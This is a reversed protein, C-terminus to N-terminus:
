NNRSNIHANYQPCLEKWADSVDGDVSAVDPVDEAFVAAFGQNLHWDIHCHFFWPGPNDATWRITVADLLGGISVVDRKVPNVYNYTASQASRVVSFTHGHLHVPHPGGLAGGPIVLEVVQGKQVSYISGQPLLSAASSTGSLIQLLVPVSPPQFSVGNVTFLVALSVVDLVYTVDAGGAEPKGPASRVHLNTEVMPLNTTQSTTPEAVAAGSYRLIACNLGNATTPLQLLTSPLARIWYNNVPQNANLVVSYRKGNFIELNDVLLPQVNQGDVEIITFQHNDISFTFSPDCSISVLRLRYRTGKVVNVVSLPSNPGGLYRGMGNILGAAPASSPRLHSPSNWDALTIVTDDNDVDYLSLHPDNSDYIVIAGRLGDCYQNRFHSHYWYTGAQDPVTFDYLFSNGPIIPCQTVFSPGDMHNTAHQFLGHWHISTATDMNTDTLEDVVNLQFHSGMSGTILPGPFVGNALVADRSYGDPSIVQNVITLTAVPGIGALVRSSLSALILVVSIM